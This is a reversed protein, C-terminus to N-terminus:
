RLVSILWVCETWSEESTTEVLKLKGDEVMMLYICYRFIIQIHAPRTDLYDAFRALEPPLDLM